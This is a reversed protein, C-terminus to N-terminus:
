FTYLLPCFLDLSSFLCISLPPSYACCLTPHTIYSTWQSLPPLDTAQLVTADSSDLFTSSFNLTINFGQAPMPDVMSLWDITNQLCLYRNDQVIINTGGFSRLNNLGLTSLAYNWAIYITARRTGPSSSGPAGDVRELASLFNLNFWSSQFVYLSGTIIRCTFLFTTM